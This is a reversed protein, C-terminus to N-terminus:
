FNIFLSVDIMLNKPTISNHREKLLSLHKVKKIGIRVFKEKM